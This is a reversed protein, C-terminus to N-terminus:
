RNWYYYFDQGTNSPHQTYMPQYIKERVFDISFGSKKLSQIIAVPNLGKKVNGTTYIDYATQYNENKPYKNTFNQLKKGEDDDENNNNQMHTKFIMKELAEKSKEEKRKNYIETLDIPKAALSIYEVQQKNKTKSNIMYFCRTLRGVSACAKDLKIWNDGFIKKAYEEWYYKYDNKIEKGMNHYVLVHYSKNGSWTIAAINQAYKGETINDIIKEQNEKTEGDMEYVFFKPIVNEGKRDNATCTGNVFYEYNDKPNIITEPKTYKDKCVSINYAKIFDQLEKREENLGEYDPNKYVDRKKRIPITTETIDNDTKANLYLEAFATEFKAEEDEIDEFKEEDTENQIPYTLIKNWDTKYYPFKSGMRPIKHDAYTKLDNIFSLFYKKNSEFDTNKFSSNKILDNFSMNSFINKVEEESFGGSLLNEKYETAEHIIKGYRCSLKAEKIEPRKNYRYDYGFPCSLFAQEVWYDLREEFKDENGKYPYCEFYKELIENSKLNRNNVVGSMPRFVSNAYKIYSMRRNNREDMLKDNTTIIHTAKAKVSFSNQGKIELTFINKDIQNNFVGKNRKRWNKLTIDDHIVLNNAASKNSNFRERPLEDYDSTLGYKNLVRVISAVLTGKGGGGNELQELCIVVDQQKAGKHGITHYISEFLKRMTTYAEDLYNIDWNCGIKKMAEAFKLADKKHPINHTKYEQCIQKILTKIIEYNKEFLVYAEKGKVTCITRIIKKGNEDITSVVKETFDVGFLNTNNEFIFKDICMSLNEENLSNKLQLQKATIQCVKEIAPVFYMEPIYKYGGAKLYTDLEQKIENNFNKM